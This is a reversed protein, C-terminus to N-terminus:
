VMEAAVKVEVVEAVRAAEARTVVTAEEGEARAKVEEVKVVVSAEERNVVAKVEKARTAM